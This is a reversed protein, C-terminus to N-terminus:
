RLKGSAVWTDINKREFRWSNGERIGPLKGANAWETISNLDVELYRALEETTLSEHLMFCRGDFIAGETINLKVPYIEGEVVASSLLSLVQKAIVKGKVRGEIIVSEGTIDAKVVATPGIILTGKTELNGEFRGNIRLNVPDKFSLNGQMSADVDLTKEEIKKRMAM